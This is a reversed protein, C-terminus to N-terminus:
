HVEDEHQVSSKQKKTSGSDEKFDGARKRKKNALDNLEDLPDQEKLPDALHLDNIKFNSIVENTGDERYVKLTIPGKKTLVDYNTIKSSKRKKLMKDYYKDYMLKKNYYRTVVDIGMLDVLENKVKEVEQKALEAKLSEVIRKQEETKEAGKTVFSLKKLKKQKSTEVMSDDPKAHDNKSDSETEEEESDKSSIVEKGKNKKILEGETQPTSKSSNSFFFSQFSLTIPLTSTTPQQKLNVNDADKTAQNTNKEGEAPSANGASPVSKTTAKLSANQVITAFRNLTVTVKNLLSPLADLTKLQSILSSIISTFTELKKPIDKLDGPLEIEMERVHKKLEKSRLIKILQKVNPYLPQAKLFSVEAEAKEKQQKLKLNQSQLLLVQDKLEQLHASKLPPPHPVSITHATKLRDRASKTKDVLVSPNTGAAQQDEKHIEDVVPTSALLQNPNSDLASSSLNERNLHGTKSKSAKTKSESTHKSSQRRRLGSRAGPNKGQSGKKEALLSTNSSKSEVPVDTNCIAKM